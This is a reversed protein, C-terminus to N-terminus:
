NGICIYGFNDTSTGGTISFTVSTGSTRTVMIVTSSSTDAATCSYTSASTFAGAGSLTFTSTGEFMSSNGAIFHSARLTGNNAYEILCPEGADAVDGASTWNACNGSTGAATASATKTGTGTFSLSAQLGSVAATVATRIAKESVVNTDAGPSGLTTVLGLGASLASGTTGSWQPVAGNVTTSPTTPGGGGSSPASTGYVYSGYLAVAALQGSSVSAGVVGYILTTQSIGSAATQGSDRCENFNSTGQIVLDGSTTANEFLCNLTGSNALTVPNGTTVASQAIGTWSGGATLPVALSGSTLMWLTGSPLNTTGVIYTQAGGLVPLLFLPLLKTLPNTM